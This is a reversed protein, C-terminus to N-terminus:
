KVAYLVALGGAYALLVAISDYGMRLFARDRREILGVLFISTLVIGILAAVSASRGVEPLVAGGPHLADVLTIITVNFLNTGFIGSIAMECQHRRVLAITTSIEPLSTTAALFVAGFFSLGLGTQESLAAGTQALTVGAILIAGAAAAILLSLHRPPKRLADDLAPQRDQRRRVPEWADAGGASTLLFISLIYVLLMLWSWAGVGLILVDGAVFASVALAMVVIGLVGQLMVRSSGQISTLAGRGYTADAVALIVVNLAASGLVDTITLAPTGQLTSTAAITLEPLSTISALLIMGIAVRGIGTTEALADAYRALRSGAFWVVVAAVVFLGINLGIPWHAAASM